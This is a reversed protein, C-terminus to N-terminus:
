SYVMALMEPKLKRCLKLKDLMLTIGITPGISFSGPWVFSKGPGLSPGKPLM